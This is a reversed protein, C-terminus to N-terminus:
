VPHHMPPNRIDDAVLDALTLPKDIQTRDFWITKGDTGIRNLAINQLVEPYLFNEQQLVRLALVDEKDQNFVPVKTQAIIPGDDLEPTVFHISCGHEKDGAELVRRHTHLGKYKPLLSPHINICRTKWRMCFLAPLIKMFGALAVFRVGYYNLADYAHWEWNKKGLVVCPKSFDHAIQIGPANPNDTVVVKVSYRSDEKLSREIIARMNSGRGSFMVAIDM